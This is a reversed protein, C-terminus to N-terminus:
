VVRRIRNRMANGHGLEKGPVLLGAIGFVGHNNAGSCGRPNQVGSRGGHEEYQEKDDSEQVRRQRALPLVAGAPQASDTSSVHSGAEDPGRGNEDLWEGSLWKQLIRDSEITSHPSM